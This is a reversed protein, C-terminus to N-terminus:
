HREAREKIGLLMAREMIFAGPEMFARMYLENALSPNWEMRWREIFRTTGFDLPELHFGWVVNLYSGPRAIQLEGPQAERTDGHLVLRRGPELIAIPIGFGSAALPVKEGVQPNQFEPLIRNSNHIDAGMM